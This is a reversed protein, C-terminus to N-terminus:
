SPPARQFLAAADAPEAADEDISQKFIKDDVFVIEVEISDFEIM